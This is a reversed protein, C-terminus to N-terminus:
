RNIDLPPGRDVGAPGAPHRGLRSLPGATSDAAWGSPRRYADIAHRETAVTATPSLQGAAIVSSLQGAAIVSTSCQPRV